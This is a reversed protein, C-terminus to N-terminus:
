ASLKKEFLEYEKEKGEVKSWRKIEKLDVSQSKAVLVAQELGQLDNWFYFACLRDKVCDTVSLIKLTGTSLAFESVEAVPEEGVSLPGDPFEVFYDTESHIFYRGKEQFELSEMVAKIRSRRAFGANILDLDKSVYKDRSYFSVASGGSLVVHIGEAQLADQIYAALEAQSMSKIRKM